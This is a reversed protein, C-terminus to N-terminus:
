NAVRSGAILAPHKCLSYVATDEDNLPSFGQEIVDKESDIILGTPFTIGPYDVVNDAHSLEACHALCKCSLLGVFPRIDGTSPQRM